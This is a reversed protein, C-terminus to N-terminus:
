HVHVKSFILGVPVFSDNVTVQRVCKFFKVVQAMETKRQALAVSKACNLIQNRNIQTEIKEKTQL